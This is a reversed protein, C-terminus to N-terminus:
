EDPANMAEEAAVPYKAPVNDDVHSLANTIPFAPNSGPVDANVALAIPPTNVLTLVLTM